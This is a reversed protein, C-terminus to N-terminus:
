VCVGVCVDRFSSPLGLPLYQAVVSMVVLTRDNWAGQLNGIEQIGTKFVAAAVLVVVYTLFVGKSLGATPRWSFGGVLIGLEPRGSKTFWTQEKARGTWM